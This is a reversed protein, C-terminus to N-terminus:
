RIEYLPLRTATGGHQVFLVREALALKDRARDLVAFLKDQTAPKILYHLAEVEYGDAIYEAYGTVFIIQAEKNIARIKRALTVGDMAGMQVDLLFIDAVTHGSDDAAFLYQEANEYQTFSADVGREIAWRQVLALLHARPAAEDDCIIIQIM